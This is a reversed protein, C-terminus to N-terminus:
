KKKNNNIAAEDKGENPCLAGEDMRLATVDAAQSEPARTWSTVPTPARAEATLGETGADPTESCHSTQTHPAEQGLGGQCAALSPRPHPPGSDHKQQELASKFHCTM